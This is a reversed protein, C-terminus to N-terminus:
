RTYRQTRKDRVRLSVLVGRVESEVSGPARSSVFNFQTNEETQLWISELLYSLCWDLNTKSQFYHEIGVDMGWKLLKVGKRHITTSYKMNRNRRLLEERTSISITGYSNPLCSPASFYPVLCQLTFDGPSPTSHPAPSDSSLAHGFWSYNFLSAFARFIRLGGPVSPKFFNPGPLIQTSFTEVWFVQM